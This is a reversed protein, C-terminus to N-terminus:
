KEEIIKIMKKSLESYDYKKSLNESNKCYENYKDKPLKYFYNILDYYEDISDNQVTKGCNFRTILDYKNPFTSVIPKGAALYTFMKNQSTGYKFVSHNVGHLLALDCKTMINPIYKPDVFGKFIVNDIKEEKCKKMLEERYPGEGYILFKIDNVKNEKFKKALLVVDDLKYAYRISGTYVVKFSNDELEKDDVNYEKIDSKIKQLDAGNNLNYVKSFDIKDAYKREKLYDIGGEMTFVLKDAHLYIYKELRYLIRAIIGKRRIMGFSVITEPWLDRTEVICPVKHKKAIKLALLASLPQPMSTYILDPKELKKLVKKGRVYYQIMNIIRKIKNGKYQSTRIYIYNVDDITKEIYNQKDNIMNVDSNHIASSAIVKVDYKKKIYKALYHHRSLGGLSPPTAYHNVIWINKM